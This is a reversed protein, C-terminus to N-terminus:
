RRILQVPTIGDTYVMDIMKVTFKECKQMYKSYLPLIVKGETKGEDLRLVRGISQILKITNLKKLMVLGELKPLNIGECLISVHFIVYRGNNNKMHNMFDNRPVKDGDIICGYKSSITYVTYGNDDCYTTFRQSTSVHYLQTTNKCSVLLTNLENDEITQILNNIDVDAPYKGSAVEDSKITILNPPVIYGDEIMRTVPVDCIIDGYVETENMGHKDPTLSMKPSATMYYSRYANRSFYKVADYWQRNISNHSEDFYITHVRIGSQQVKHLSHYSTFIFKPGATSSCWTAIDIPATTRYYPVHGSHVHCVSVDDFWSMFENCLQTTLAITPGVVVITAHQNSGFVYQADKVMTITKGSGTPMCIIGKNTDGMASVADQQHPRLSLIPM